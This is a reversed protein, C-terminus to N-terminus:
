VVRAFCKEVVVGEMNYLTGIAVSICIACKLEDPPETIWLYDYGGVPESNTVAM